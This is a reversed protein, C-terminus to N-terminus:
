ETGLFRPVLRRVPITIDWPENVDITTRFVEPRGFSAHVPDLRHTHVSLGDTTEVRWYFPIGAEAYLAPKTIRDLAKSSPSVVEIALLVDQPHFKAPGRAAAEVTTVLVDPIFSRSKTVRMEVSQTVAYDLPCDEELAVMLRGTIVQHAVAPSPHVMLVGDVLERRIGDEPLTELDDTTWGDPPTHFEELTAAM